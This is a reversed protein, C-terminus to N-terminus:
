NWKISIINSMNIYVYGYETPKYRDGSDKIVIGICVSEDDKRKNNIVVFDNPKLLNANQLKAVLDYKSSKIKLDFLNYRDYIIQKVNYDNFLTIYFRYEFISADENVGNFAPMGSVDVIFKDSGIVTGIKYKKSKCKVFTNGIPIVHAPFWDITSSLDENTYYFKGNDHRIHNANVSTIYFKEDHAFSDSSSFCEVNESMPEKSYVKYKDQRIENM